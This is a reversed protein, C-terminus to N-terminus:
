ENEFIECKIAVRYQLLFDGTEVKLGPAIFDRELQFDIKEPGLKVSVFM